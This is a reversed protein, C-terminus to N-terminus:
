AEMRRRLLHSLSEVKGFLMLDPIFSCRCSGLWGGGKGQVQALVGTRKKAGTFAGGKSTCRLEAGSMERPTKEREQMM